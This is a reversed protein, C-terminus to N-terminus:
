EAYFNDGGFNRYFQEFNYKKEGRSLVAFDVSRFLESEGLGNLDLEKLAKRFLDSVLAADNMFAGCGFAGLVLRRYGLHAACRLMGCIREYVMTEYQEQTMGEIGYNIMPAACTMVAAVATDDLLNGNEDKIIEVQPTIVIAHSGMFTHLSRNYQYYAAAEQSELSVLLSSKRCLDEEQARSGKRVGGGPNVPNALNLVLVDGGHEKLVQRALTYSDMNVCSYRCRSSDALPQYDQHEKLAAVDGPLFVRVREMEQRSLKLPVRKGEVEYFGQECIEWTDQFMRILEDM